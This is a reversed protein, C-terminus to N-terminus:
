ILLEPNGNSVANITGIPSAANSIIIDRASDAVCSYCEADDNEVNSISSDYLYHQESANELSSNSMQITEVSSISDLRPSVNRLRDEKDPAACSLTSDSKPTLTLNPAFM